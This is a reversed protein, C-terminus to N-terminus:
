SIGEEKTAYTLCDPLLNICTNFSTFKLIFILLSKISLLISDMGARRWPCRWPAKQGKPADRRGLTGRKFCFYAEQNNSARTSLFLSNNAWPTFTWDLFLQFLTWKSSSKQKKRGAEVLLATSSKSSRSAKSTQARSIKKIPNGASRPNSRPSPSM